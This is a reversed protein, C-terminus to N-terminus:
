RNKSKAKTKKEVDAMALYVTSLTNNFGYRTAYITDRTAYVIDIYNKASKIGCNRFGNIVM